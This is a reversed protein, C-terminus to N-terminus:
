LPLAFPSFKIPNSSAVVPSSYIYLGSAMCSCDSPAFTCKDVPYMTILNHNKLCKAWWFVVPYMSHQIQINRHKRNHYRKGTESETVWVWLIFGLWKHVDSRLQKTWVSSYTGKINEETTLWFNYLTHLVIYYVTPFLTTIYHSM